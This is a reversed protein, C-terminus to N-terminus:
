CRSYRGWAWVRLELRADQALALVSLPEEWANGRVEDAAAQLRRQRKEEKEALKTQLEMAKEEEVGLKRKMEGVAKQEAVLEKEVKGTKDTQVRLEEGVHELLSELSASSEKELRLEKM